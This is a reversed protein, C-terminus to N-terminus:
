LTPIPVPERTIGVFSDSFIIARNRGGGSKCVVHDDDNTVEGGVGACRTGAEFSLETKETMWAWAVFIAFTEKVETLWRTIVLVKRCREMWRSVKVAGIAVMM